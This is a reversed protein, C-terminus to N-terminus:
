RAEEERRTARVRRIVRLAVAGLLLLAGAGIIVWIVASAQISRIPVQTTSGLPVHQDEPDETHDTLVLTVNHVGPARTTADLLVSAEGNAPVEVTEPGQISIAEPDDTLAQISVEVPQDLGNAITAGFRGNASSLAVGPPGKITISGLRGDIWRASAEAALRARVPQSRASYSLTALAEDAVETAVTGNDRLVHQLVSGADILESAADVAEADLRRREQWRPVDLEDLRVRTGRRDAAEAVTVLDVWEQDLADYFDSVSSPAWGAPLQVVLPLRGPSLLRAAAEALIRQRLAVVALPDDPGPGGSAAGSSTVVLPGEDTVAVAPADEAFMRDTVLVTTGPERLPLAGPDLFGTPSGIAPSTPVEWASTAEDARTRARELLEPAEAAGAAVDVDGYPLVLVQDGEVAESVRSLWARAAEAVEQEQASPEHRPAGADPSPEGSPEEEAEGQGEGGPASGSPEIPGPEVTPDLSRPPNGDALRQVAEVLAPDVLWTLDRDGAAAGLDVLSHLMGDPELTRQWGAVDALSGDPERTLARRLPIVLAVEVERGDTRPVVPLFTRARGDASVDRGDPGQGLAHVGFWYVGAESPLFRRPVRLTFRATEGPELVEVTDDVEVIRAGVDAEAPVEAAEALEATSTIPVDSVFPYLNVTTWPLEDRNTVSGTLTIPGTGPLAAPSLSDITVTLPSDEDPPAAAASTGPGALVAPLVTVLVTVLATLLAAVVALLVLSAAPLRGTAHPAM